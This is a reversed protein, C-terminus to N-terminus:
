GVTSEWNMGGDQGAAVVHCCTCDEYSTGWHNNRRQDLHDEGELHCREVALHNPQQQQEVVRDSAEEVVGPRDLLGSRCFIITM